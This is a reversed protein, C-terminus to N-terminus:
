ILKCYRYQNGSHKTCSVAQHPYEYNWVGVTLKLGTGTESPRFYSARLLVAHEFGLCSM